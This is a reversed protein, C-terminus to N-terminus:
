GARVPDAKVFVFVMRCPEPGDNRWTHLVGRDVVVDGPRVKTEGTETILSIEGSVVVAYDLTDTAHMAIPPGGAPLDTYFFSTGGVPIDFSFPAGGADASGKNDAPSRDTSWITQPAADDIIVASRGERDLGTVVRRLPESM